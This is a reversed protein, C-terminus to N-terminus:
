PADGEGFVIGADLLMRLLPTATALPLVVDLKIRAAGDASVAFSLVDGVRVPALKAPASSAAVAQSPAGPMRPMLETEPIGLAKSLLARGRPSPAGTAHVWKFIGADGRPKGLAENLDPMKWGRQKMVARITAAIHGNQAIQEPTAPKADPM